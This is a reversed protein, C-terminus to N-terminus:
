MVRLLFLYLATSGFISIMPNRKWLHLAVTVIASIFEPAGFPKESFTVNKFCYVTLVAMIMPPIYKEIFRITKPVRNSSFLIFPFARTLFIVLASFFTAVFANTITLNM